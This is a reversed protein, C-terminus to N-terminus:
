QASSFVTPILCYPLYRNVLCQGPPTRHRHDSQGNIGVTVTINSTVTRGTCSSVCSTIGAPTSPPCPRSSHHCRSRRRLRRLGVWPGGALFWERSENRQRVSAPGLYIRFDCQLGSIGNTLFSLREEPVLRGRDPPVPPTVIASSAAAVCPQSTNGNVVDNLFAIPGLGHPPIARYRPRPRRASHPVSGLQTAQRRFPNNAYLTRIVLAMSGRLIPLPRPLGALPFYVLGRAAM